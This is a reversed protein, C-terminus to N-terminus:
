RIAHQWLVPFLTQTQKICPNLRNINNIYLKVLDWNWLFELSVNIMVIFYNMILGFPVYQLDVSM